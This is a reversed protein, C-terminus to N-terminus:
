NKQKKSRSVRTEKSSKLEAEDKVRLQITYPEKYTIGNVQYTGGLVFVGLPILNEAQDLNKIEAVDKMDNYSSGIFLKKNRIKYFPILAYKEILYDNVSLDQPAMKGSDILETIIMEIMIHSDEYFTLPIKKGQIKQSAIDVNTLNNEGDFTVDEPVIDEILNTVDWRVKRNKFYYVFNIIIFYVLVIFIILYITGKLYNDNAFYGKVIRLIYLTPFISVITMIKNQLRLNINLYNLFKSMNSLLLALLTEM